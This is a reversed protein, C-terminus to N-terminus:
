GVNGGGPHGVNACEGMMANRANWMGAEGRWSCVSVCFHFTWSSCLLLHKCDFQSSRVKRLLWSRVLSADDECAASLCSLLFSQVTHTSSFTLPIRINVWECFAVNTCMCILLVHCPNPWHFCLIQLSARLHVHTLMKESTLIVVAMKMECNLYTPM